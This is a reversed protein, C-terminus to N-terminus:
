ALTYFEIWLQRSCLSFDCFKCFLSPTSPLQPPASGQLIRWCRKRVCRLMKGAIEGRNACHLSVRRCEGVSEIYLSPTKGMDLGSLSPFPVSSCQGLAQWTHKLGHRKAACFISYKLQQLCSGAASCCRGPCCTRGVRQVRWWLVFWARYMYGACHACTQICNYMLFAKKFLSLLFYHRM